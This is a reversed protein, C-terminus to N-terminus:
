KSFYITNDTRFPLLPLGNVDFLNPIQDNTFCYRVSVPEPEERSDVVINGDKDIIARAPHFVKDNGAIQFSKIEKENSSLKGISLTNIIFRKKSIMYSSFRPFYPQIYNIHYVEKLALNALRKATGGKTKPHIDNVDNIVLDGVNVM